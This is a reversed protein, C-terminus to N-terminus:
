KLRELEFRASNSRAKWLGRDMAEVLRAAMEKLAAPNKEAMFRRVQEDAVFANYVADFHHDRVAGTTASFAFMYDVTAAIEFAGKYGHRMVGAIWKPNVVRARVVRSIEEELTRIVPREPRSHDNHYITPRAGKLAEVAASMGGEFQYYDDSDLLDHERNDQNQVVADISTLRREMGQRELKGEANAGYAYSGWVLYAEAFDKREAWGGEDILAQLGAGYSGPKSGFVRYGSRLNAESSSVGDAILAEKEMGMRLSIPNDEADEELAGIARVAQDFLAIQDPFADRFFGSIRLTVDVRPRGLMALPTIEYGTVRKSNNEWVPKAGILAFAQALDDGGTRMNSTGWCTLGFSTPWDGHDQRYRTILLEASKKGLEWATQTPVARPDVSYFNRGTPLVDPRGRTPAGSPGPPVFRGALATLIGTIEAPGCATVSPRIRATIEGMVAKTGHWDEPCAIAGSVLASALFEIREVTDGNTRWPAQSLTLLIEPRVGQWPQEMDCDLPDFDPALRGGRGTPMEGAPPSIAPDRSERKSAGNSLPPFATTLSRGGQPPSASLCLPAHAAGNATSVGFVDGSIARHLSANGGQGDGRPLRALAVVLDDLLRGEPARGFVHLGDRIQMEKLECLYGDLKQLAAAEGDDKGIGADLDLGIDRVLELIRPGLLKLRRPDFGSAEFYEDVLAELDKLAGYTEARTLPPTLHDIIVASTRRKAQTGEGPDNVIFPYINPVPGLIAEPFCEASLSLAKGPLWELNGHKGMHVIADTCFKLRLFAYFALYGHPPPLDPSHYSEKPNINYGRAPQIGIIVNGFRMLPLAFSHSQFFPDESPLGWRETVKEQIVKPLSEFFDKYQNLSLAERALRGAGTKNTVGESLLRILADGDAPLDGTEYGAARMARMVEITGAPTDLGVGNAIRGDRNPYNALIIAVNRKGAEKKGLRAWNSALDAVFKVRDARPRHAVISTEVEADYESAAKFSIARSFVRGDVEPLVVNMALDRTTLGQASALWAEESTGSLVVQIVPAGGQNLVTGRWESGPASVSFGTANLVLAPAAQSFLHSVTAASIDDKLSSIFIPLPSLGRAQLAEILAAIAATQGSQVLARYFIIACIPAPLGGGEAACARPEEGVLPSTLRGIEGRTPSVGACRASPSLRGTEWHCKVDELSAQAEGPWWLGAKLLPAAPAPRERGEVMARAYGLFGAANGAGGEVLYRWLAHCDESAVTSFRALGPDPKDDGPLVALKVGLTVAMAHLAELGYPWYGEGGLIRVIVLTAHRATREVYTDVSLPHQLSLLNALRLSPADAGMENRTQALAGIESDAASLFIVNAPSQGLDVAEQGEAITGKQALLLHM